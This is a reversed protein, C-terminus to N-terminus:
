AAAGPYLARGFGYQPDGTNLHAWPETFGEILDFVLGATTEDLDGTPEDALLLRPNNVLARALAVRQQEGGSFEGPRHDGRDELGVEM